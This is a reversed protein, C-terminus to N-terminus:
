CPWRRLPQRWGPFFGCRPLRMPLARAHTNIRCCLVWLANNRLLNLSCSCDVCVQCLQLPLSLAAVEQITAAAAGAAVVVVDYCSSGSICESRDDGTGSETAAPSPRLHELSVVRQLRLQATSGDDRAAAEM